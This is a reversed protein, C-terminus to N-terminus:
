PRNRSLIMLGHFQFQGGWGHALATEVDPVQRDGAKGMVQLAAEAVRIMATAGIPNTCLVGGSPDCPLDGGMDTVGEEVLKGGEGKRCFGLAEYELIEQITFPNYLEAVDLERLPDEIKAKRYIRRALMALSDWDAPDPKDGAWYTDAISGAAKVWAPTDTIERVKDESAFILACAGDSRPCCDLLRLPWSILRSNLVDEVTVKFRLHAYPNRTAADHNKVSVMALQEETTGYKAMHRAAQVAGVTIAGWGSYREYIPDVCTNLVLQADVNEGVRQCGVAMCTDFLGSAVHYYGALAVSIGTTGGTTVKMYPKNLGGGGCADADWKDPCNIGDFPDMTGYVVSEVDGIGIDADKLAANVAELMLEPHTVDNRRTATKTLGVGVIAVRRVM